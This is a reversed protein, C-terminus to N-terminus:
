ASKGSMILAIEEFLLWPDVRDLGKIARDAQACITLLRQWVASSQQLGRRILPKRKDWVRHAGMVQDVGRGQELELAMQALLRIERSLAWLVVPSAVGEARLGQLLRMAKAVEGSLLTDVLGFVNFRASDGVSRALQELTVVGPGQLLLLKEIEQSAALLNGEVREALMQVVGAEPILGAKRLRQELWPGLRNGEVPWIQVLVGLRDIADIWKTSLQSRELKPATILLVTDPPPSETFALLAKSGEKGIKPSHLRLDLLRRDDFLSLSDAASSLASWDFHSSQELVERSTYGQERAKSRVLDAAEGMQLPEDGSLLIIPPLSKHLHRDLQDNRLRM